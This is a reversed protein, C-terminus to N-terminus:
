FDDDISIDDCKFSLVTRRFGSDAERLFWSMSCWPYNEAAAVLGHKVPNCHVYHLRAFYSRENTICTDRYQYWVKRGSTRDEANVARATFSHLAQIMRKLSRADEPAHAVFHYHNPLVAWAQLSWQFQEAQEFLTSLLLTRREPSAFVPAKRYARATVIYAQGPVFCHSPSHAWATSHVEASEQNM